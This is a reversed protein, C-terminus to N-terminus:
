SRRNHRGDIRAPKHARNGEGHGLAGHGGQLGARVEDHQGGIRLSRDIQRGPSTVITVSEQREFTVTPVFEHKRLGLPLFM